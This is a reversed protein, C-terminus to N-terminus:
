PLKLEKPKVGLRKIQRAPNEDHDIGARELIHRLTGLTNNFFQADYKEAFQGAWSRCDTETTKNLSLMDLEPWTRLPAKICNRHYVKSGAQLTYDAELDTEYLARAEVLQEPL